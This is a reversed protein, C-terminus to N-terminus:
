KSHNLNYLIQAMEERTINDKPRFKKSDGVMLKSDNCYKVADRAWASVETWDEFPGQEVPYPVGFKKCIVKAQAKAILTRKDPDKLIAEDLPHDHFASEVLLVHPVGGDQAADIVGLYDEGPYNTSEWHKNGGSPIGLAKAIEDAMEKAFAEDNLDVSEYVDTGRRVKNVPLGTANTHQSIFLQAGWNAAMVGRERVGIFKDTERTLKVEFAGTTRLEEALKLSIDLVGDAEIYGTPGKNARDKGGHGPDIMVKIM